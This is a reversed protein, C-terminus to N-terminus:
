AAQSRKAFAIWTTWPVFRRKYFSVRGRTYRGPGFRRSLPESKPKVQATCIKATEIHNIGNAFSAELTAQLNRQNGRMYMKVLCGYYLVCWGTCAGALSWGSFAPAFQKLGFFVGPTALAGAVLCIITTYGSCIARGGFLTGPKKPHPLDVGYMFRMGGCSLIPVKLETRGFRRYQMGAGPVWPKGAADTVPIGNM